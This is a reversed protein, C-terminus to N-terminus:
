AYYNPGVPTGACLLDYCLSTPLFFLGMYSEIRQVFSPESSFLTGLLKQVLDIGGGGAECQSKYAGQMASSFDEIDTTFGTCM